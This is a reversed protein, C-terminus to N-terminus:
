LNAADLRAKLSNIETTAEQLAKILMPVFVSYKVSKTTTGLDNGDKDRDPSEDVMAPFVAELEQAVVGLQKTTSGILNYNRVKVQMLNALKPSADIINEKLKVDSIAGYSNNTNVINGNSRVAMTTTAATQSYVTIANQGTGNSNVSIEIGPDTASSTQLEMGQGTAIVALRAGWPNTTGGLLFNGGSTFRAVDNQSSGGRLANCIRLIQGTADGAVLLQWNYPVGNNVSDSNDAGMYFTKNSSANYGLGSVLSLTGYPIGVNGGSDLSIGTYWRYASGDYAIFEFNLGGAYAGGVTSGNGTIRGHRQTGSVGDFNFELSGSTIITATANSGTNSIGAFGNGVQLTGAAMGGANTSQSGIRVSGAFYNNDASGTQYVGWKGVNVTSGASNISELYLSYVNNLTTGPTLNPGAYINFLTATVGTSYTPNLVLGFQNSGADLTVGTFAADILRDNTTGQTGFGVRGASDIEARAVNNTYFWLPYAATTQFYAISSTAGISATVTGSSVTLQASTSGVVTLQRDTATGGPNTTGLGFNGISTFRSREGWSAGNYTWFAIATGTGNTSGAIIGSGGSIDYGIDIGPQDAAASTSTRFFALRKGSGSYSTGSADNTVSFTYTANNSGTITTAGAVGLINSSFTLNASDQLLGGTGALVVRGNSLGSNTISPTILSTGLYLTRPRTAGSAGIDYTNDTFILNSTITSNITLTDASSDGVTVNGNLTLGGAYVVDGGFYSTGAAIYLSYPNTLTVNTGASPAGAIYLTAANTYTVSTNTAAIPTIALSAIAGVANTAGIASTTDTVTGTGLYLKAPTAAAFVAVGNFSSDGIKVTKVLSSLGTTSFGGASLTTGDFTLDADDVQLGGTGSVVVRNVTLSSNTISSSSVGTLGSLSTVWQPASGTSTMVRNAAGIGLFTTTAVGSQYPVSGAVGGALNTATAVTIATPASWQPITGNSTLIYTDAGISLKSLTNSASAYLTDGAAYTSQATGGYIAGLANTLNLTTLTTTSTASNFTMAANGALAGANNYQIQTNSGGITGAGKTALVQVVGANDEYFLKGDTINIALEGQALNAATPVASATTSYYLQIPTYNTAAM